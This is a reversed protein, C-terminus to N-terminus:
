EEVSGWIILFSRLVLLWVKEKLYVFMKLRLFGLSFCFKMVLCFMLFKLNVFLSRLCVLFFEEFYYWLYWCFYWFLLVDFVFMIVWFCLFLVYFFVLVVLWCDVIFMVFWSCGCILFYFFFVLGFCGYM